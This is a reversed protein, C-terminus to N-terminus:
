AVEAYLDRAQELFSNRHSQYFTEFDPDFGYDADFGQLDRWTYQQDMELVERQRSLEYHEDEALQRAEDEFGITTPAGM